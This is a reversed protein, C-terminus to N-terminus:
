ENDGTLEQRYQELEEPSRWLFREKAWGRVYERGMGSFFDNMQYKNVADYFWEAITNTGEAIEFLPAFGLNELCINLRSQIFIDMEEASINTHKGKLFTIEQIRQEHERILRALKYIKERLEDIDADTIYGYEKLETVDQVFLGAGGIAHLNEDIASMNIGRVTNLAKNKGKSQFHKLYAFVSYLVSGEMLSFAAISLLDDDSNVCDELFAVRDVLVPDQTWSEYFEDTALGLVQNIQDYFKAHSNLETHGFSACMRGIEPRPYTRLVRGLWHEVGVFLEYKTFLRLNFTIGHTEAEDMNTLLDQKDKEVKIEDWPWFIHMQKDALKGFAPYKENYSEVPTRMPTKAHAYKSM